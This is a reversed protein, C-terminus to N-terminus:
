ANAEKCYGALHQAWWERDRAHNAPSTYNSSSDWKEGCNPCTEWRPNM